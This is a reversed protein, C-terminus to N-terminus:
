KDPRCKNYIASVTVGLAFTFVYPSKLAELYKEDALVSQLVGGTLEALMGQGISEGVIRVLSKDDAM